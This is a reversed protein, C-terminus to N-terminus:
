RVVIAIILAINRTNVVLLSLKLVIDVEVGIEKEVVPKDRVLKAITIVGRKKVVVIVGARSALSDASFARGILVRIAAGILNAIGEVRFPFSIASRAPWPEVVPLPFFYNTKSLLSSSLLGILIRNSESLL